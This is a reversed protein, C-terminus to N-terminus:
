KFALQFMMLAFAGVVAFLEFNLLYALVQFLTPAHTRIDQMNRHRGRWNPFCVATALNVTLALKGPYFSYVFLEDESFYPTVLYRSKISKPINMSLGIWLVIHFTGAGMFVLLPYIGLLDALKKMRLSRANREHGFLWSKENYDDYTSAIATDSNELGWLLQTYGM